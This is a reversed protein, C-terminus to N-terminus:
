GTTDWIQLVYEDDIEVFPEEQNKQPTGCCTTTSMTQLVVDKHLPRNQFDLGITPKLNDYFVNRVYRNM